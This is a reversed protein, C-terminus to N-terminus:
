PAVPLGEDVLGGGVLSADPSICDLCAGGTGPSPGDGDDHSSFFGGLKEATGSLADGVQTVTQQAVEAVPKARGKWLLFGITGIALWARAGM